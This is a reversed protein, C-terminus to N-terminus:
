GDYPNDSESTVIRLYKELKAVKKREDAAELSLELVQVQLIEVLLEIETKTSVTKTAVTKTTAPKNNSRVNKSETPSPSDDHSFSRLMIRKTENEGDLHVEAMQIGAYKVFFGRRAKYKGGIAVIRDDPLYGTTM